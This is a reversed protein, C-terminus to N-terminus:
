SFFDDVPTMSSDITVGRRASIATTQHDCFYQRICRISERTQDQPANRGDYSADDQLVEIVSYPFAVNGFDIDSM